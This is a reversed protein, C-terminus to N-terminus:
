SCVQLRDPDEYLFLLDLLNLVKQPDEWFHETERLQEDTVEAVDGDYGQVM